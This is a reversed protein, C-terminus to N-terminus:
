RSITVEVPTSPNAPTDQSVAEVVVGGGVGVTVLTVGVHVGADIAEPAVEVQVAATTPVFLGALVTVHLAVFPAIVEAPTKVGDVPAVEPTIVAVDVTSVVL